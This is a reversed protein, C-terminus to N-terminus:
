VVNIKPSPLPGGLLRCEIWDIRLGNSELCDKIAQEISHPIDADNPVDAAHESYRLLVTANRSM